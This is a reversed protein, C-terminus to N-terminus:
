PRPRILPQWILCNIWGPWSCHARPARVWPPDAEALMLVKMFDQIAPLTDVREARVLTVLIDEPSASWMTRPLGTVTGPLLGIPDKSARDLPTVTIQPTQVGDSVPPEAIAAPEM